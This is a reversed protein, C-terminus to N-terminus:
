APAREPTATSQAFSRYYEFYQPLTHVCFAEVFRCDRDAIANSRYASLGLATHVYNADALQSKYHALARRKLDVTEDIRVFCNPFLPTWVEYSHCRFALSTDKVAEALLPSAATHDPHQEMFFPLYLIEPRVRLLIERLKGPADPDAELRGDEADLYVINRIGLQTLALEAEHKRMSTVTMGRAKQEPSLDGGHRGDTLFVVTVDAGRAVHLALTGGCGIVEDDMHPALVVVRESGPQWVLASKHFVKTTQLLGYSQLYPRAARSMAGLLVKTLTKM